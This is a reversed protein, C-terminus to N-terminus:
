DKYWFKFWDRIKLMYNKSNSNYKHCPVHNKEFIEIIKHLTFRTIVTINVIHAGYSSEFHIKHIITTYKLSKVDSYYIKKEFSGLFGGNIVFYNDYILIRGGSYSMGKDIIGCGFSTIM